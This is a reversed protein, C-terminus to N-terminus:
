RNPLVLAFDQNLTSDSTIYVVGNEVAILRCPLALNAYGTIKM